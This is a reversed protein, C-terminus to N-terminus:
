ARLRAVAAELRDAVVDNLVVTAGAEGLGRAVAYGLGQASGTVLAVRGSLDFLATM